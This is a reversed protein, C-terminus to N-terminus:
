SPGEVPSVTEIGRMFVASSPAFIALGCTVVEVPNVLRVIAILGVGAIGVAIGVAVAGAEATTGTFFVAVSEPLPSLLVSFALSLTRKM